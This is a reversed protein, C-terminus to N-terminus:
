LKHRAVPLLSPGRGALKMHRHPDWHMHLGIMRPLPTTLFPVWAASAKEAQKEVGKGPWVHARARDLGCLKALNAGYLRLGCWNLQLIDRCYMGHMVLCRGCSCGDRAPSRLLLRWTRIEAWEEGSCQSAWFGAAGNEMRRIREMCCGSEWKIYLMQYQVFKKLDRFLKWTLAISSHAPIM